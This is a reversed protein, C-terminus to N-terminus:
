VISSFRMGKQFIGVGRSFINVWWGDFFFKLRGSFKKIM